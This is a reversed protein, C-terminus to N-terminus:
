YSIPTSSKAVRANHDVPAVPDPLSEAMRQRSDREILGREFSSITEVNALREELARIQEQLAAESSSTGGLRPESSKMGSLVAVTGLAAGAVVAVPLLPALPSGNLVATLPICIGLMGTACGWISKVLGIRADEVPQHQPPPPPSSRTPQYQHSM